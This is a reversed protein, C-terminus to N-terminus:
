NCGATCLEPAVVPLGKGVGRHSIRALHYAYGSDRLTWDRASPFILSSCEPGPLTLSLNVFVDKVLSVGCNRVIFGFTVYPADRPGPDGGFSSAESDTVGGPYTGPTGFM